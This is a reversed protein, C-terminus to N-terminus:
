ANPVDSAYKSGLRIAALDAGKPWRSQDKNIERFGAALKNHFDPDPDDTLQFGFASQIVSRATYDKDIAVHEALTEWERLAELDRLGYIM